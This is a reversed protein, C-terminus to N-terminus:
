HGWINLIASALRKKFDEFDRSKPDSWVAESFAHLRPILQRQLEVEDPVYETWLHAESGLVHHHHEPELGQPIPDFAYIKELPLVRMGGPKNVGIEEQTTPYDLYVWEHTSNITDLGQRAAKASQNPLWGQVIQGEIGGADINDGWAITRRCLSEHVRQSVRGMFWKQLMSEDTFGHAKCLERCRPCQDWLGAKREDGGVHLYPGPFLEAVEGLVDELFRYAKEKGACFVGYEIGGSEAVTYDMGKCGLEPYAALAALCHGPMEIEPIITVHRMRAYAVIERVQEQTYFGGYRGGGNNRWAGVSTLRPYGLVELRWGQDDALHWHFRNLKLAALQDIIKYILDVPQFHRVSDLMFGRWGFRPKDKILACPLETLTGGNSDTARHGNLMQILSQGAHFLGAKTAARLTIHETTVSLIYGENGVDPSTERDTLVVAGSPTDAGPEGQRITVFCGTSVRIHQSLEDAVFHAYGPEAHFTLWLMVTPRFTYAGPESRHELPRPIIMPLHIGEPKLHIM